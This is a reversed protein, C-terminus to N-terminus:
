REPNQVNTGSTWIPLQDAVTVWDPIPTWESFRVGLIVRLMSWLAVCIALARGASLRITPADCRLEVGARMRVTGDNSVEFGGPIVVIPGVHFGVFAHKIKNLARVRARNEETRSQVIHKIGDQLPGISESIQRADAPPLNTRGLEADTPVHLWSRFAEVDSTFVRTRMIDEERSRVEVKDLLFLISSEVGSGPRWDWLVSLWALMDEYCTVELAFAETTASAAAIADEMDADELRYLGLARLARQSIAFTVANRLISRDDWPGGYDHYEIANTM